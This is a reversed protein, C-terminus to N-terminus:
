ERELEKLLLRLFEIYEEIADKNWRDILAPNIILGKDVLCEYQGFTVRRESKRKIKTVAQGSM